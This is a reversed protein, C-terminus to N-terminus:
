AIAFETFSRGEPPMTGLVIEDKALVELLMTEINEQDTIDTLDQEVWVKGNYIRFYLNPGLVRRNRGNAIPEWGVVMIMYNDTTEDCIAHTQVSETDEYTAQISRVIQTLTSRVRNIDM